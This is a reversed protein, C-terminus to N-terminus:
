ETVTESIEMEKEAIVDEISEKKLVLEELSLKSYDEKDKKPVNIGYGSLFNDVKDKNKSYLYYGAAAVGIGVVFGVVHDKNPKTVTGDANGFIGFM